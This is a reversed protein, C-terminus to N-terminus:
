KTYHNQIPAAYGSRFRAQCPAVQGILARGRRSPQPESLLSDSQMVVSAAPLVHLLSASVLIVPKGVLKNVLDHKRRRRAPGSASQLAVGSNFPSPRLHTWLFRAFAFGVLRSPEDIRLSQVPKSDRTRTTSRTAAAKAVRTSASNRAWQRTAPNVCPVSVILTSSGPSSQPMRRRQANFM